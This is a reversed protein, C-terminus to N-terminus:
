RKQRKKEAAKAREQNERARFKAIRAILGYPVPEDLMFRATGKGSRYRALSQKFAPNGLPAPYLGIHSKFAAMYVLYRGKSTFAPIRYSITEEADPVAKRITLRITQLIKQVDNPFGAIYEDIDRAATQSTKM